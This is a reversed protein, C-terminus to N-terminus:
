LEEEPNGLVAAWDPGESFDQVGARRSDLMAALTKDYARSVELLSGQHPRTRLYGTAQEAQLQRKGTWDFSIKRNATKWQGILRPDKRHIGARLGIFSTLPVDVHHAKPDGDVWLRDFEERLAGEYTIALNLPVGRTKALRDKVQLGSNDYYLGPQVIFIGEPYTKLDWGGLKDDGQFGPPLESTYIGDTALMYVNEGCKGEQCSPLSHIFDQLMARTYATIFSGWVYNNYPAAGIRQAM